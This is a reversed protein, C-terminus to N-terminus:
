HSAASARAPASPAMAASAAPQEATTGAEHLIQDVQALQSELIGITVMRSNLTAVTARADPKGLAIALSIQALDHAASDRISDWMAQSFMRQAAYLESYRVLDEHALYNVSHDSIAADWATTKLPPLADRFKQIADRLTAVLSDDTSQGARVDGITRALLVRWEDANARTSALAADVAKRNSAIEQEIEERARTGEHRHELRLAVQELALATLISLVIMSYHSLFERVSRPLKELPEVHM